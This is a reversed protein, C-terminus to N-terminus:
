RNGGGICSKGEKKQLVHQERAGLRAAITPRRTKATKEQKKGGKMAKRAM